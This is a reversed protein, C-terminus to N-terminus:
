SKKICTILLLVAPIILMFSFNVLSLIYGFQNLNGMGQPIFAIFYIIPMLIFVFTQKKIKKFISSLAILSIDIYMVTTTFLTIIWTFFFLIDFRELFEDIELGKGLEIVPYTLVQTVNQSFLSICMLYIIIYIAIVLFVGRVVYRPANKPKSILSTYFLVIEFGSFTFATHRMSTIYDIPPTQLIPFLRTIDILNINLLFLLILVSLTILLFWINLRLLAIRSGCLGYTIPLLFLFAIIQLSLGDTLYISVVVSIARTEYGAMCIFICIAIATLICAVSKSVLSSTYEFFSKQPFYASLKTCIWGLTAAICGSLLLVVWGDSFLTTKSITNPTSLIGIGIINSMVLFMLELSSINKMTYPSSRM